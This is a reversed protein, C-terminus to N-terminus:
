ILWHATNIATHWIPRFHTHLSSFAISPRALAAKEKKFKPEPSSTLLKGKETQSYNTKILNSETLSAGNRLLGSSTFLTIHGMNVELCWRTWHRKNQSGPFFRMCVTHMSKLRCRYSCSMNADAAQQTQISYRQTRCRTHKKETCSGTCYTSNISSRQSQALTAQRHPDQQGLRKSQALKETAALQEHRGKDEADLNSKMNLYFKKKDTKNKCTEKAETEKVRDKRREREWVVSERLRAKERERALFVTRGSDNLRM